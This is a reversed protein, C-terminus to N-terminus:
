KLGYNKFERKLKDGHKMQTRPGRKGNATRTLTGTSMCCVDGDENELSLRWHYIM